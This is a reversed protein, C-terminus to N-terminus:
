DSGDDHGKGGRVCWVYMITSKTSYGIDGGGFEVWWAHNWESRIEDNHATGSWYDTWQVNSTLAELADPIAPPDIWGNERFEAISGLEEITPARWGKRGGVYKTICYRKASYWDRLGDDNPGGEIDPSREWVLCTEKDFVAEDNMVLEFRDTTLLKNWADPCDPCDSQGRHHGGGIWGRGWGGAKTEVVQGAMFVMVVMIVAMRLLSSCKLINRM